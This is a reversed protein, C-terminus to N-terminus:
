VFLSWEPTTLGLFLLLTERKWLMITVCFPIINDSLFQLVYDAGKISSLISLCHVLSPSELLWQQPPFAIFTVYKSHKDTAKPIWHALFMLWITM